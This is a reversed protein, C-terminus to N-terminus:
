RPSLAVRRPAEGSKKFFHLTAHIGPRGRSGPEPGGCTRTQFFDPNWNAYRAWSRFWSRTRTPWCGAMARGVGGRRSARRSSLDLKRGWASPFEGVGNLSGPFCAASLMRPSVGTEQFSHWALPCGSSTDRTALVAHRSGASPGHSAEWRCAPFPDPTGARWTKKKGPRIRLPTAGGERPHSDLGPDNAVGPGSLAVELRTASAAQFGPTEVRTV